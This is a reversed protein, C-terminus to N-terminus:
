LLPAPRGLLYGQAYTFGLESCVALEDPTEVGEALTAIGLSHAVNLLSAVLQQRQNSLHIKRILSIDFKLYDPAVESLELLRAQGAGFDDYALEIELDRLCARLEMTQRVNTVAREHLELVLRKHPAMERLKILSALLGHHLEERPHTNLFIACSDPLTRSVEVGIERCLVSFAAEVELREAAEFMDKPVTLGPWDSRALIEYGFLASASLSALRVVPQFFPIVQRAEMLKQFDSLTCRLDVIGFDVTRDMALGSLPERLQDRGVRFELTSLQVVDGEDLLMDSTLRKGNVYTGNLSQLDRVCLVDDTAVFEAHRKSISPLCLQLPVDTGRGVQFRGAPIPIKHITSDPSTAGALYWPTPASVTPPEPADIHSTLMPVDPAIVATLKWLGRRHSEVVNLTGYPSVKPLGSSPWGRYVRVLQDSVVLQPPQISKELLQRL